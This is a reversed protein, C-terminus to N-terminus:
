RPLLATHVLLYIGVNRLFMRYCPNAVTVGNDAHNVAAWGTEYSTLWPRRALMM